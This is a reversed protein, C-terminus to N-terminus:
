KESLVRLLDHYHTQIEETKKHSAGLSHECIALARQLLPIADSEKGQAISLSALGRLAVATLPHDLGL